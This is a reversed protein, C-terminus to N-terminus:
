MGFMDGLEQEYGFEGEKKAPEERPKLGHYDRTTITSGDIPVRCM